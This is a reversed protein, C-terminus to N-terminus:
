LYFYIIHKKYGIKEYIEKAFRILLQKLTWLAITPRM